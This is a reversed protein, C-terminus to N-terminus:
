DASIRGATAEAAAGIGAIRGFILANSISNGGGVYRDGFVGGAVEGAAFLGEILAEDEDFVRAAADVRVGAATMGYSAPRIEVAYFPPQLIPQLPGPKEFRRDRGIAADANYAAVTNALAKPRIDLRAALEVLSDASLILGREVEQAIRGTTFPYDGVGMKDHLPHRNGAGLRAAEDFIGYCRSGTQLRMLDANVAYPANESMFRRGEANVIIMWSPFFNSVDRSLGPTATLLGRDRGVIAAGIATAMAHGDGHNTDAGFYYSWREAHMAAAPYYRELLVRNDGLGGSALVVAGAHIDAGQARAGVVRRGDTLLGEVRVGCHFEAGYAAAAGHLREFLAQGGGPTQHGRAVDDVGSLYLLEPPYAVGLTKLWELTPASEACFTRILGPELNWQNLTMYYHFMRDADDDIGAEQQTSTGAAYFVGASLATSGGPRPGAELVTVSCGTAAAAIAAATGAGGGGIILVDSHRETM